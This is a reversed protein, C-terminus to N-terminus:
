PGTHNDFRMRRKSARAQAVIPLRAPHWLAASRRRQEHMAQPREDLVEEHTLLAAIVEHLLEVLWGCARYRGLLLRHLPQPACVVSDVSAESRHPRRRGVCLVSDIGAESRHSTAAAATDGPLLFM